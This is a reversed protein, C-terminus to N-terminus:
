APVEDINRRIVRFTLAVIHPNDDWREGSKTHLSDWLAGYVQAGVRDREAQDAGFLWFERIECGEARADHLDIARLQQFRVADVVLTLRSAWRPMHIAPVWAGRKRNYHHLDSWRQAATISNEIGIQLAPSARYEIVDDGRELEIARVCERVYLRDGPAVRRLPSTALRRTQSKRGDLLAQVMGDSFIIPRDTM